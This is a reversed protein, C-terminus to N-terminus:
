KKKATLCGMAAAVISFGAAWRHLVLAIHQGHTGLLPFMALLISLILVMGSVLMIWFWVTAGSRARLLAWVLLLAAYLGGVGVHILLPFGNLPYAVPWGFGFGTIALITLFGILAIRVPKVPFGCEDVRGALRYVAPLGVALGLLGLLLALIGLSSKLFSRVEFTMGFLANFQEDVQQFAHMSVTKARGTLLPGTAIVSGFLFDSDASHCEKCTKAGLSQATGRVDHGLPWSVPEASAHDEDTLVGDALAFKRGHAIYCAGDGLKKLLLTVQEENFFKGTGATDKVAREIFPKVLPEGDTTYWGAKLTTNTGALYGDANPAFLMDRTVCVVQQPKLAEMVALIAGEAEYEIMEAQVDFDPITTIVNTGTHWVWSVGADSPGVRDLGGDVNLRYLNGGAAYMPEGPANDTRALRRLVAGVQEPADLIGSAAAAVIEEDLPEGEADAWYAPWMMRRPEILGDDNRVYVPEVIFPSETYWQARGYIGLRNARSTRVRQPEETPMPGSHCATCSMTEFHIPPIGKHQAVPAGARGAVRGEETHCAACSMTETTGRLMLHDEGNRHCDVCSLGAAAHVDGPVEARSKGVPHVSHCQLCNRDTPRGIDLWSRHKSDFLAPDYNVSPPVAYTQDDPNEGIYVDWWDPMRAAMGGVEGLGSAATAAWRFNERAIQKAWESHDQRPSLNHCAMCNIELGGSIDWRAAPDALKDKPDSVGGGSLHRGFQKTFEWATLKMREAPVQTGLTEDVVIWPQTPRGQGAGKFHTGGHILEYDHCAGCSNRSSFPMADPVTPVINLGDEATLPIRHVPSVRSGDFESARATLTMGLILGALGYAYSSYGHKM